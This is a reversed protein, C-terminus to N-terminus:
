ERLQKRPALHARQIKSCVRAIVGPGIEPYKRLEDM